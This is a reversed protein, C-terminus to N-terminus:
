LMKLINRQDSGLTKIKENIKMKNLFFDAEKDFEEEFFEVFDDLWRNIECTTLYDKLDDTGRGSEGFLHYFDFVLLYHFMGRKIKIYYDDHGFSNTRFKCEFTFNKFRIKFDEGEKVERFVNTIKEKNENIIGLVCKRIKTVEQSWQSIKQEMITYNERTIRENPKNMELITLSDKLMNKIATTVVMQILM